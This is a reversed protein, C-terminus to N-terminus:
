GIKGLHQFIGSLYSEPFYPTVQTEGAQHERVGGHLQQTDRINVGRTDQGKKM